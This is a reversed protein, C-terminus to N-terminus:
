PGPTAPLDSNFIDNLVKWSGDSQEERVVLLSEVVDSVKGETKAQVLTWAVQTVLPGKEGDRVEITQWDEEALAARWVDARVFPTLLLAVGMIAMAAIL